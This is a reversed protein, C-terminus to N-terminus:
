GRPAASVRASATAPRAPSTTLSLGLWLPIYTIIIASPLTAIIMGWSTLKFLTVLYIVVAWPHMGSGALHNWAVRGWFGSLLMGIFVGVLGFNLYYDGLATIPKGSPKGPFYRGTFWQGVTIREPKEPWISRPIVGVIGRYFSEGYTFNHTDFDQVIVMFHDTANANLGTLVDVPSWREKEGLKSLVRETTTEGPSSISSRAIGLGSLLLAMVLGYTSFEAVSLRRVCFHHLVALFLFASVIGGREGMLFLIFISACLLSFALLIGRRNRLAFHLVLASFLASLEPIAQLVSFGAFLGLRAERMYDSLNGAKTIFHFTIVASAALGAVTIWGLRNVHVKAERYGPLSEAIKSALRGRGLAYGIVYSAYGLMFILMTTRALDTPDERFLHPNDVEDLGFLITAPRLLLRSSNLITFISLPDLWDVRFYVLAAIMMAVFTLTLLVDFIM